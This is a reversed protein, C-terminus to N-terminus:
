KPLSWRCARRGTYAWTRMLNGDSARSLFSLDSVSKEGKGSQNVGFRSRPVGFTGKLLLPRARPKKSCAKSAQVAQIRVASVGFVTEIRRPRAPPDPCVDRIVSVCCGKMLFFFFFFTTGHDRLRM